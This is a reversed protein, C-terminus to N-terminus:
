EQCRRSVLDPPLLVRLFESIDCHSFLQFTPSSDTIKPFLQDFVFSPPLNVAIYFPFVLSLLPSWKSLTCLFNRSGLLLLSGWRALHTLLLSSSFPFQCMWFQDLFPPTLLSVDTGSPHYVLSDPFLRLTVDWLPPTPLSSFFPPHPCDLPSLKFRWLFFLWPEVQQPFLDKQPPSLPAEGVELPLPDTFSYGM